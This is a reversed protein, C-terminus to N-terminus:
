GAPLTLVAKGYKESTVTLTISGPRGASRLVAAAQGRFTTFSGGTYNERAQPDGSGFGALTGFVAQQAFGFAHILGLDGKLIHGGPMQADAQVHLLELLRHGDAQLAHADEARDQQRQSQGQAQAQPPMDGFEVKDMKMEKDYNM